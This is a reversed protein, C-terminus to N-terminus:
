TERTVHLTGDHALEMSTVGTVQPLDLMEAVEPGVQGTESDTSAKGPMVLDFPIRRIAAALARATALTDSGALAHDSLHVARDVGRGLCEVLAERAQPPGMTIATIEGGYLARLRVAETLARKDFANIVSTVGERVLTRTSPDYRLEESEPVQKIPVIIRM